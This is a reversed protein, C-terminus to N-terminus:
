LGYRRASEESQAPRRLSMLPPEYPVASAVAREVQEAESGYAEMEDPDHM